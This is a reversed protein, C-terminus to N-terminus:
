DINKNEKEYVDGFRGEFEKIIDDARNGIDNADRKVSSDSIISKVLEFWM